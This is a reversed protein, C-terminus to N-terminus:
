LKQNGTQINLSKSITMKDLLWSSSVTSQNIDKNYKTIAAM